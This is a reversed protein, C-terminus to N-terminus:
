NKNHHVHVDVRVRNNIFILELPFIEGANISLSLPSLEIWLHNTTFDLASDERVRISNYIVPKRNETKGMIRAKIAVPTEVSLLRTLNKGENIVRFHLISKGGAKESKAWINEVMIQGRRYPPQDAFAVGATGFIILITFFELLFSHKLRKFMNNFLNMLLLHSLRFQLVFIVIYQTM